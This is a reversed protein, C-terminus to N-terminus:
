LVPSEVGISKQCSQCWGSAGDMQLRRGCPCVYGALHAPVGMVLGYNPVSRTVVAGAAVMAFKGITVGAVIVAAAGISAGYAVQTHALEWDTTDKLTGDPRIARPYLDNTFCVRPGVFVGDAITVGHYILSSNQIKVNNGIQVGADIYADKGIICTTGITVGERIQVYHWIRTGNGIAAQPSVDATPHIIAPDLKKDEVGPHIFNNVALLNNM